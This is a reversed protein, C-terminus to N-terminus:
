AMEKWAIGNQNCKIAFGNYIFANCIVWKLTWNRKCPSWGVWECHMGAICHTGNGTAKVTEQKLNWTKKRKREAMMTYTHRNPFTPTDIHRVNGSFQTLHWKYGNAAIFLHMTLISLMWKESIIDCQIILYNSIQTIKEFAAYWCCVDGCKGCCILRHTAICTVSLFIPPRSQSSNEALLAIIIM